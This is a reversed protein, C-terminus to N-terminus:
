QKGAGGGEIAALRGDVADLKDQTVKLKAELTKVTRDFKTELTVLARDFKDEINSLSNDIPQIVEILQRVTVVDSMDSGDAVRKIQRHGGVGESRGFYYSGVSVAGQRSDSVAFTLKTNKGLFIDTDDKPTKDRSADLESGSGLAVGGDQRVSSHSGIATASEKIAQSAYGVATTDALINSPSGRQDGAVASAGVAVSNKGWARSDAGVATGYTDYKYWKEFTKGAELDITAYARSGVAVSNQGGTARTDWNGANGVGTGGHVIVINGRQGTMDSSEVSFASGSITLAIAALILSSSKKLKLM